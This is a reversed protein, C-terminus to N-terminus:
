TFRDHYIIEYICKNEMDGQEDGGGDQKDEKQEVGVIDPFSQAVPGYLVPIWGFGNDPKV